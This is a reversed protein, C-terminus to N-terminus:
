GIVYGRAIPSRRFRGFDRPLTPCLLIDTTLENALHDAPTTLTKSALADHTVTAVFVTHEGGGDRIGPPLFSDYDGSYSAAGIGAQHLQNLCSIRRAQQRARTLAPLLMAALIAIIAIVVLLEILTFRRTQM